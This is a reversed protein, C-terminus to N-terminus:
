DLRAEFEKSQKGTEGLQKLLEDAYWIAAQTLAPVTIMEHKMTPDHYKPNSLLGQMALGAFYERKSLGYHSERDELSIGEQNVFPMAPKDANNM